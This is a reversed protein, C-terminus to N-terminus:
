NTASASISWEDEKGADFAENLVPIQADTDQLWKHLLESLEKLKEPNIQSLDEEEGIDTKLDYLEYQKTEYKYILKWNKHRLASYPTAGELHYHPYHWYVTERKVKQQNLLENSLDVGDFYQSKTEPFKLNALGMLTPYIDASISMTNRTVGSKIKNPWKIILPIRVGGEYIDGKGSRLPFNDTVKRRDNEFNGRLGGNDSTFVIITNEDLGKEKLTKVVKGLADDMHEVMAAYTVNTHHGELNVISKYKDVKEQSAELPTHVNYLWFNIFFPKKQNDDILKVVENTLRETLYEGDPGDNLRPNNYPSFYGGGSHAAPSGAKFGGINEDFGNHEPWNKEEEGLHWKGVHFTEYGNDQFAEGLTYEDQSLEQNWEPIKIKGYKKVHGTIWDTLNIRAPYKGTLISARTPSCVTCASYADTYLVGESALKDVNPTQYLDSGYAGMDTWGLDDVVFLVVNPKSEM